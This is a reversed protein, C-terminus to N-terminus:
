EATSIKENKIYSVVGRGGAQLIRTNEQLIKAAANNIVVPDLGKWKQMDKEFDNKFLARSLDRIVCYDAVSHGNDSEYHANSSFFSLHDMLTAKALSLEKLKARYELDTSKLQPFLKYDSFHRSEHALYSILFDESHMDYGKKVCYLSSPTAWGGPYHRGLTAYEEWGLTIFDSMLCVPARTTDGSLTFIYTTDRQEKWVLLDFIRGTKGFGTTYLHLAALYPVIYHDISDGLTTDSKVHDSQAALGAAPPYHTALYGAVAQMLVTDGNLTPNLLSRRWYKKYIALLGDIASSSDPYRSRDEGYKFREEFAKKFKRDAQSLRLTDKDVLPLAARADGDLTLSYIAKYDLHISDSTLAPSQVPPKLRSQTSAQAFSPTSAQAFSQLSAMPSSEAAGQCVASLSITTATALVFLYGPSFSFATKM